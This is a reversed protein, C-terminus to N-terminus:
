ELLFSVLQVCQYRSSVQYQQFDDHALLFDPVVHRTHTQSTDTEQLGSHLSNLGLDLGTIDSWHCQPPFRKPLSPLSSQWDIQRISMM